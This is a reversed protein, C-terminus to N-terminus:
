RACSPGRVWWRRRRSGCLTRAVAPRRGGRRSVFDRAAYTTSLSPYPNGKVPIERFENRFCVGRPPKPQAFNRDFVSGGSRFRASLGVQPSGLVPRLGLDRLRAGNQVSWVRGFTTLVEFIGQYQSEPDSSALKVQSDRGNRRRFWELVLDEPPRTRFIKVIKFFNRDFVSGNRSFANRM